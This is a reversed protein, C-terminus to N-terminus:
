RGVDHSAAYSDAQAQTYSDISSQSFRIQGGRDTTCDITGSSSSCTVGFFTHTTPSKVSMTNAGHHAFYQYFVNEAFPCTAGSKVGINADCQSYGDPTPASASNQSSSSGGSTPTKATSGISVTWPGADTSVVVTHYTGAAIPDVGQTQNLGNTSISSDDSQANNIIFNTNGCSPCNWSITSDTDVVITGLNKQGTGQFTQSRARAPTGQTPTTDSSTTDAKAPPATVTQVPPAQQIVTKSGGGVM